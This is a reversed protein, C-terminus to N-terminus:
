NQLLRIPATGDDLVTDILFRGDLPVDYHRGQPPDVAGGYIRTPFFVM